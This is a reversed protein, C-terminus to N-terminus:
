LEQGEWLQSVSRERKCIRLVGLFGYFEQYSGRRELSVLLEEEKRLSVICGFGLVSFARPKERVCCEREAERVKGVM